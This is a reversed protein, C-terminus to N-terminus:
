YSLPSASLHDCYTRRWLFRRTSLYKIFICVPGCAKYLTDKMWSCWKGLFILNPEQCTCLFDSTVLSLSKRHEDVVCNKELWMYGHESVPLGQTLDPKCLLVRHIGITFKLALSIHHFFSHLFSSKHCPQSKLGKGMVETELHWELLFYPINSYNESSFTDKKVGGGSWFRHRNVEQPGTPVIGKETARPPQLYGLLWHKHNWKPVAWARFLYWNVYTWNM